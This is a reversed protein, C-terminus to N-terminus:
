SLGRYIGVPLTIKVLGWSQVKWGRFCSGLYVKNQKPIWKQKSTQQWHKVRRYETISVSFLSLFYGLDVEHIKGGTDLRPECLARQYSEAHEAGQPLASNQFTTPLTNRTVQTSWFLIRRWYWVVRSGRSNQKRDVARWRKQGRVSDM